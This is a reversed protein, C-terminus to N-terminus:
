MRACSLAFCERVAAALIWFTRRAQQGTTLELDGLASRSICPAPGDSPFIIRFRFARASRISCDRPPHFLSGRRGRLTHLGWFQIHLYLRYLSSYTSALAEISRGPLLKRLARRAAMVTPLGAKRAAFRSSCCASGPRQTRCRVVYGYCERCGHGDEIRDVKCVPM